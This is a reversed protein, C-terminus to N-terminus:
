AKTPAPDEKENNEVVDEPVYYHLGLIRLFRRLAELEPTGRKMEEDLFRQMEEKTM